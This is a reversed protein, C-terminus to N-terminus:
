YAEDLKEDVNDADVVYGDLVIKTEVEKGAVLDDIVDFVAPGYYPSSFVTASLRGEQIAAFADKQGDIGIIKIDVGPELGAAEIALAAGLAMEDNHAYVVDISDRNAALLNDMVQQAEARSFEATQSAIIEIGPAQEVAEHFGASRDRASSAGPTGALEVVRAEGGTHEVVWEGAQQGEWVYDSGIYTVFDEGAVGEAERDVLIVPIGADRAALLGATLGDFERPSLVLYDVGQSVLDEVDSVQKATDDQADTSVVTYGREDGEGKISDTQNIRYSVANSQQAFGVVTGTDAEGGRSCGTLAAVALATGVLGVTLKKASHHLQM